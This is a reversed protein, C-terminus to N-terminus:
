TYPYVFPNYRFMYFFWIFISFIAIFIILIISSRLIKKIKKEKQTINYFLPNNPDLKRLENEMGDYEKASIKQRDLYRLSRNLNIEKVLFDIRKKIDGQDKLMQNKNTM